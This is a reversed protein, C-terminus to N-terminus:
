CCIFERETEFPDEKPLKLEIPAEGAVDDELSVGDVIVSSKESIVGVIENWDPDPSKM